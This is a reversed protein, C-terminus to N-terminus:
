SVGTVTLLYITEEAAIARYHSGKHLTIMQWESLTASLEDTNVQLLGELVQISMIGPAVHRPLESNKHLGGVVISMGETKFVTISNRDSHLWAHEQKIQAIYAPLDIAVSSADIIHEAGPRNPTPDNYKETM